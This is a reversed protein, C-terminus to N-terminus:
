DHKGAAGAERASAIDARNWWGGGLSQFLAVTDSFRAARAQILGIAAQQYAQEASLLSLYNVYGLEFQRRILDLSRKAAREADVAARLADADSEIAHLTDAVNQFATLVASRYQAAAEDLGAEAARKKHLLAGADFLTQTLSGAVAWYTNGPIFMQAIQTSAGGMNGSLNIQPFMNATAVGVQACASHFQEEAARVDPRQEVLKSPISLPLDRPLELGALEFTEEPEESPFRGTLAALQDRTQALQKQLPPLTQRVQALATEQAAVDLGAAYGLSLQRRTLDLMKTESDIISLTAAIQARLSAEQVAAAAVNSALTLYTAELQFRQYDDEARLSEVQRRNAGFVDLTFGVTLQGTYLNYVSAGSTLNSALTGTANKQRGASGNAQITPFFAAVQAAVNEHAQRLAAQASAITPNAEFAREIMANLPPSEFLTWWQAPIDLDKIFRQEEGGPAGVPSAVAAPPRSTYGDVAPPDPRHFDPGLACGSLLAAALLAKAIRSIYKVPM